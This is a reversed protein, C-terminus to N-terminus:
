GVFIFRPTAARERRFCLRYSKRQSRRGPPQRKSPAVAAQGDDKQAHDESMPTICARAFLM